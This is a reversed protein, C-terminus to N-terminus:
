NPLAIALHINVVVFSTEDIGIDDNLTSLKQFVLLWCSFDYTLPMNLTLPLSNKDCADVLIRM